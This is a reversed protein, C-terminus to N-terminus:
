FVNAIDEYDDIAVQKRRLTINETSSTATGHEEFIQVTERERFYTEM